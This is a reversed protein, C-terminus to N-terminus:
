DVWIPRGSGRVSRTALLAGATDDLTDIEVAPARLGDVVTRLPPAVVLQAVYETFVRRLRAQAASHRAVFRVQSAYDMGLEILASAQTLKLEVAHHPSYAPAACAADEDFDFPELARLCRDPHGHALHWWGRSIALSVSVDSNMRFESISRFERDMEHYAAGTLLRGVARRRIAAVHLLPAAKGKLIEDYLREASVWNGIDQYLNAIALMLAARGSAPCKKNARLRRRVRLLTAALLAPHMRYPLYFLSQALFAWDDGDHTEFDDPHDVALVDGLRACGFALAPGGAHFHRRSSLFVSAATLDIGFRFTTRRPLRVRHRSSLPVMNEFSMSDSNEELLVWDIGRQEAVTGDVVCNSAGYYETLQQGLLSRGSNRDVSERPSPLVTRARYIEEVAERVGRAVEVWAADPNEWTIVPRLDRPLAQYRGFPLNAFDAPKVLVPIIRVRGQRQRWLATELEKEFCFMSAIFDASVLLIFIDAADLERAIDRQWDSGPTIVRNCWLDILGERALPALHVDLREREVEDRHSYSVFVHCLEGHVVGAAGHAALQQQHAGHETDSSM